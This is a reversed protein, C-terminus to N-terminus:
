GLLDVMKRPVNLLVFCNSLQEKNLYERFVNYLHVADEIDKESGLYLKFAIQLELPSIQLSHGNLKLKLANNLTFEDTITKFFKFEINPLPKNEEHFRLASNSSLYEYAEAENEANMCDFDVKLDKWLAAFKESSLKEVILDVDETARSRGFVIAVYGSVLVYKVKNKELKECFKIVLNDLSNLEKNLTIINESIEIEM